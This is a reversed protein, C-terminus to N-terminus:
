VGRPPPQAAPTTSTGAPPTREARARVNRTSSGSASSSASEGGSVAHYRRRNQLRQAELSALQVRYARNLAEKQTNFADDEDSDEAKATIMFVSEFEEDDVQPLGPPARVPLGPPARVPLGPPARVGSPLYFESQDTM